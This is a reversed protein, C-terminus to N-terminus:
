DAPATAPDETKKKICFAARFIAATLMLIGLNIVGTSAFVRGLYKGCFTKSTLTTLVFSSVLLVLFTRDALRETYWLHVVYLYAPILIVLHPIETVPTFSPILSFVLAYGGWNSVLEVENRFSVAYVGTALTVLLVILYGILSVTKPTLEVITVSYYKGAYEFAPTDLFFRDVQARLSVNGNGTWVGTGPANTLVVREVWERHYNVNKEFGVILAPLGFGIVGALIMGLMVRYSRRAAFWFGFPATILKIVISFGIAFGGSVGQRKALLTLGLVVLALVLINTQGFRLHLLTFRATFLTVLFCVTWRTKAPISFFADGVIGSYFAAM